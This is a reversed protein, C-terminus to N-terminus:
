IALLGDRVRRLLELSPGDRYTDQQTTSVTRLYGGDLLDAALVRTVTLTLGTHASLEALSLPQPGAAAWVRYLERGLMHGAGPRRSVALLTHMLLPRRIRVRGRTLVYRGERPHRLASAAVQNLPEKVPGSM